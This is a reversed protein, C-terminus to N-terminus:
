RRAKRAKRRATPRAPRVPTGTPAEPAESPQAAEPATEATEPPEPLLDAIGQSAWHHAHASDVNVEQGVRLPGYIASVTQVRMRVQM